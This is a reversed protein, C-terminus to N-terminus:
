FPQRTWEHILVQAALGPKNKPQAASSL